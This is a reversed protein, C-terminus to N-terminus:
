NQTRATLKIVIVDNHHWKCVNSLAANGSLADRLSCGETIRKRHAFSSSVFTMWDSVYGTCPSLLKVFGAICTQHLVNAWPWSLTTSSSSGRRRTTKVVSAVIAATSERLRDFRRTIPDINWRIQVIRQVLLEAIASLSRSATKYLQQPVASSKTLFRLCSTWLLSCHLM